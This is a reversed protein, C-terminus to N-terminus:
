SKNFSVLINAPKIDRHVLNFKHMAAIGTAIQRAYTKMRDMAKEHTVDTDRCTGPGTYKRPDYIVQDLSTDCKEIVMCPTIIVTDPDDGPETLICLGYFHVMNDCEINRFCLVLVTVFKKVRIKKHEERGLINIKLM